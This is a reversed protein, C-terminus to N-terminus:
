LPETKVGLRAGLARVYRLDGAGFRGADLDGQLDRLEAQTQEGIDGRALIAQLLTRAAARDAESLSEAADSTADDAADPADDSDAGPAARVLLDDWVVGGEKMRRAVDRAAAVVDADDAGDLRKLLAIFSPRDIFPM